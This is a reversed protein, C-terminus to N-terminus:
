SAQSEINQLNGAVRLFVEVVKPDFQTGSCRKLEAIIADMPRGKRYPRDAGMADVTDAVALIRAHFPIAEEKLGEPYGTGDYFEHHYKIAPIVHKLQKIPAIIEAGKVPHQRMVAIEEDTLKGPKDLISEYTGIKGIDHLLGALELDKTEKESLGLEQGIGLAYSTVRESHGATWKSKADIASSLSKVTGLFLEELDSVLRSNELAIGIQSAIKGLTSLDEPTFASPRKAGINLIGAVEGKIVLPVRIHSRFGNEYLMKEIPLIDKIEGFDPIYQPRGTEVVETNSTDKFPIFTGKKLSDVGFGATYIIGGKERDVLGIGARDCPILRAIMRVTTEIIEQRDLTSLINKDIEHMVQITEIKHFLEMSKNVTEKYLRAQELATSVQHSIGQMIKKDRGTFEISTKYVGIILGLCGTTSILPIVALTNIDPLWSFASTSLNLPQSIIVPERKGLAENVVKSKEELPETRFLPILNHPLGIEHSPKFVKESSDWLYSLLIDCGIIEKACHVVQEMLKDIDTTHATADAIMLLYRTIEMEDKIREEASKQDEIISLLALRSQNSNALLERAMKESAVIAESRKQETLDTAVLCFSDPMDNILTKSVSLYVPVLTGDSATFVLQEHRKEDIGKRLLSQLIRQSDPAIWSHITSGILKELPVKLMEAFHRNAFLIMGEATLTLAGESMDEILTRYSHDAGKLTFVQEGGVGSVILADVEGSRIARLTEEAEDLRARLDELELLLQKQATPEKPM